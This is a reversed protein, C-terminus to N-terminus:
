CIPGREEASWYYNKKLYLFTQTPNFVCFTNAGDGDEFLINKITADYIASLLVSGLVGVVLKKWKLKKWKLINRIKNNKRKLKKGKNLKKEMSYLSFLNIINKKYQVFTLHHYIYKKWKILTHNNKKVEFFKFTKTYM